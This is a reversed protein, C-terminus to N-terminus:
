ISKAKSVKRIKRVELQYKIHKYLPEYAFPLLSIVMVIISFVLFNDQVFPVGGLFYGSLLWLIVWFLAGFINYNLFNRYPMKSVGAVFPAFTRIIPIFRAFIIIKGGHRDYYEKAKLAYKKKFYKSEETFIRPGIKSGIFYNVMDGMIAASSIILFLILMDFYGIRAMTGLAFILSDGPLIPTIVLGTECFFVAFIALYILAGWQQFLLFLNNDLHMFSSIIAAIDIM